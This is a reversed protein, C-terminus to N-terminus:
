GSGGRDRTFAAIALIGLFGFIDYVLAVDLLAASGTGAGRLVMLALIVASIGSLAALRDAGTPGAIVRIMMLAACGALIWALVDIALFMVDM